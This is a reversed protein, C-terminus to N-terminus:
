CILGQLSSPNRERNVSQNKYHLYTTNASKDKHQSSNHEGKVSQGKYYLHTTNETLLSTRTIFTMNGALKGKWPLLITNEILLRTKTFPVPNKQKTLVNTKTFSLLKKGTLLNNRTIFILKTRQRSSVSIKCMVWILYKSRPTLNFGARIGSSSTPVRGLGHIEQSVHRTM